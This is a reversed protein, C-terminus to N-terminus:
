GKLILGLMLGFCFAFWVFVWPVGVSVRLPEAASRQGNEIEVITGVKTILDIAEDMRMVTRRQFRRCRRMYEQLLGIEAATIMEPHVSLMAEDFKDFIGALGENSERAKELLLPWNPSDMGGAYRGGQGAYVFFRGFRIM